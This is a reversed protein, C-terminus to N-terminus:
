TELYPIYCDRMLLVESLQYKQLSYIQMSFVICEAMHSETCLANAARSLTHYSSSNITTQPEAAHSFTKVKAADNYLANSAKIDDAIWLQSNATYTGNLVLKGNKTITCINNKFYAECGDNCIQGISYLSGSALSLCIHADRAEKSFQPLNVEDTAISQTIGRNPSM